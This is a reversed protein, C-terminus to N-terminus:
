NLMELKVVLIEYLPINLDNIVCILILLSSWLSLCLLIHLNIIFLFPFDVILSVIILELTRM